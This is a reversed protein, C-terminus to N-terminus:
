IAPRQCLVFYTTDSCPRDNWLADLYIQGCNGQKQHNNPQYWNTYTFNSRYAPSDDIWYM